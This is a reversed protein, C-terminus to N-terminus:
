SAHDEEPIPKKALLRLVFVSGFILIGYILLTAAFVFIIGPSDTVADATKMFGYVIWPQRGVETVIWGSELAIVSAVGSLSLLFYFLSNKPGFIRWLGILLLFSGMAVMVQFAIHVVAVPPWNERPFDNLGKVVAAADDYLLWSLMGPIEIAYRTVGEVADPLGGIRLPAHTTTDFQGEMAALKIPQNKAVAKASWDGAVIQLPTLAIAMWLSLALAKTHYADRKGKLWAVAYVSAMCFAAVMYAALIMHLTQTPTAANLMAAIPDVDVVAGRLMQFGAPSNMWANATVVFWASAAGSIAIPFSSLWHAKPSLRNWGYLYIGVFIGEIFFAFGELTFPLGIVGGFTGMFQPWLLGLEFSLVTGSVAGVAFLVAFIKSWRKAINKWVPDKTRLYRYEALLMLLPLGVGFCAFIIHFGLTFAMQLRALMLPEFLM